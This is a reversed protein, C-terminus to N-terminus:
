CQNRASRAHRPHPRHVSNNNNNCLVVTTAVAAAVEVARRSARPLHSSITATVVVVLIRSHWANVQM